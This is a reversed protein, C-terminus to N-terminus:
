PELLKSAEEDTMSEIEDLTKQEQLTAETAAGTAAPANQIAASMAALTPGRFFEAMTLEKGMQGRVRAIVQAALVSDGGLDLFHDEGRAAPRGLVNCWIEALHAQAENLPGEMQEQRAPAAAQDLGLTKALGMRQPKGTPGKPIEDMIIIRKPVKFDALRKGAFDILENESVAKDKRLVVAAAVEEGLRADAIAFTIAQAIAPHDLLVEDIERPSIKEGARNIIEKIRGALFLYGEADFQGLDGTRFWGDTFASQNAQPNNEYGAMVNAGRIVVEGTKGTALLEGAESM